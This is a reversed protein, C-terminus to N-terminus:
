CVLRVELHLRALPTDLVAVANMYSLGRNIRRTALTAMLTKAMNRVLKISVQRDHPSLAQGRKDPIDIPPLLTHSDDCEEIMTSTVLPFTRNSGGGFEWEDLRDELDALASKSRVDLVIRPFGHSQIPITSPAPPIHPPRPPLCSPAPTHNYTHMPPHPPPPPPPPHMSKNNEESPMIMLSRYQQDTELCKPLVIIIAKFARDHLKQIFHKKCEVLLDPRNCLNRDLSIVVCDKGYTQASQFILGLYTNVGDVGGAKDLDLCPCAMVDLDVNPTACAETTLLRSTKVGSVICAEDYSLERNTLPLEIREGLFHAMMIQDDDLPIPRLGNWVNTRLIVGGEAADKVQKRYHPYATWERCAHYPICLIPRSRDCSILKFVIDVVDQTFMVEYRQCFSPPSCCEEDMKNLPVGERFIVPRTQLSSSTRSLESNLENFVKKWKQEIDHDATFKKTGPNSM